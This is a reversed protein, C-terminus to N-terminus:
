ADLSLTGTPVDLPFPQGDADVHNRLGGAVPVAYHTAESDPASGTIREIAQLIEALRPANRAFLDPQPKGEVSYPLWADTYTEFQLAINGFTIAGLRALHDHSRSSGDPLVLEGSGEFVVETAYAQTGTSKTLRDAIALVVPAVPVDFPVRVAELQEAPAPGSPTIAIWGTVVLHSPFLVRSAALAELAREALALHARVLKDDFGLALGTDFWWSGVPGASPRFLHASM